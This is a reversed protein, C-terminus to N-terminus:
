FYEELTKKQLFTELWSDIYLLTKQVIGALLFQRQDHGIYRELGYIIKQYPRYHILRGEKELLLRHAYKDFDLDHDAQVIRDM